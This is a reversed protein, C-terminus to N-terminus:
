NNPPINQKSTTKTSSLNSPQIKSPNHKQIKTIPVHTQNYHLFNTKNPIPKSYARRQFQSQSAQRQLKTEVKTALEIAELLSQINHLVLEDRITDKLGNMLQSVFQIKTKQLNNRSNLRHFEEFRQIRYIIELVWSTFSKLM